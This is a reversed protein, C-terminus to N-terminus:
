KIEEKRLIIQQNPTVLVEGCKLCRVTSMARYTGLGAYESYVPIANLYGCHFCKRKIAKALLRTGALLANHRNETEGLQISFLEIMRLIDDRSGRIKGKMILDTLLHRLLHIEIGFYAKAENMIVDQGAGKFEQVDWVVLWKKYPKNGFIEYIRELVRKDNFKKEAFYDVGDKQCRKSKTYTAELRLKLKISVRAEVHYRESTQPNM